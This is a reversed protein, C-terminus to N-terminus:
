NGNGTNRLQLPNGLQLYRYEPDPQVYVIWDDCTSDQSDFTGCSGFWRPMTDGLWYNPNGSQNGANPPWPFVSPYGVHSGAYDSGSLFSNPVVGELDSSMWGIGQSCYDARTPRGRFATANAAATPDTQALLKLRMGTLLQGQYTKAGLNTDF